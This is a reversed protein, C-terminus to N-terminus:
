TVETRKKQSNLIDNALNAHEETEYRRGMPNRTKIVEGNQVFFRKQNSGGLARRGADSKIYKRFKARNYNAVEEGLL